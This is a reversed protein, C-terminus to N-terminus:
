QHEKPTITVSEPRFTRNGRGPPHVTVTALTDLVARQRDTDLSLWVAEPDRAGIIPGLVDVRGAHAMREELASLRTRIRDNATRMQSRTLIGDAYDNALGDLRTRLTNAERRMGATNPRKRDILLQRADPQALRALIVAAVHEEVPQARRAIHGMSGSCRYTRQGTKAYGGAHLTAGCVGCLGLGSLLYRGARPKNRRSPDKLLTTAALFTHEDVIAPWLAEAIDEGNHYRRGYYRPNLLVNRVASTSWPSPEGKHGEKYRAQATVHGADNWSKAIGRLSAGALLAAYGARVAEAEAPRITMGDADYGFPRRGGSRKGAEAAQTQARRQRDSKLNVEFRATAGLMDAVYLGAANSFDIDSGNVLALRVGKAECLEYLRVEDRKNRQLRDLAWAVVVQTHGKEISTLLNEFGPRRRGSTASLDNDSESSTLNWGRETVLRECDQRQRDVGAEEGTRDSSIRVYITAKM